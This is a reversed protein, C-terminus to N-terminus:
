QSIDPIHNFGCGISRLSSSLFQVESVFRNCTSYINESHKQNFSTFLNTLCSQM